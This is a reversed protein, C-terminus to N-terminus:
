STEVSRAVGPSDHLTRTIIIASYLSPTEAHSMAVVQFHAIHDLRLWVCLVGVLLRYSNRPSRAIDFYVKINYNHRCYIYVYLTAQLSHTVEMSALNTNMSIQLARVANNVTPENQLQRVETKM